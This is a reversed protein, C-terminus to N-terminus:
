DACVCASALLGVLCGIMLGVVFVVIGLLTRSIDFSSLDTDKSARAKADDYSLATQRLRAMQLQGLISRLDGGCQDSLMGLTADNVGLGEAACVGRLRRALMDRSPRKFDLELCYNRLSKLKQSWKDNCICIIPIKSAKITLLLDQLGGRDGGQNKPQTKKKTKKPKKPPTKPHRTKQSHTDALALVCVCVFM